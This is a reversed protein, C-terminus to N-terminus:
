DDAAGQIMGGVHGALAGLGMGIGVCAMAVGAFVGFGGLAMLAGATGATQMASMSLIMAFFGATAGTLAGPVGGILAGIKRALGGDTGGKLIHSARSDPGKAILEDLADTAGAEARVAGSTIDTRLTKILEFEDKSTFTGVGTPSKFTPDNPSIIAEAEALSIMGDARADSIRTSLASVSM